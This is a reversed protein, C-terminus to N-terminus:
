RKVEICTLRIVERLHDVDEVSVIELVRNRHVLRMQPDISATVTDYMLEVVTQGEAVQQAQQRERGAGTVFRARRHGLVETTEALDSAVSPLQVLRLISVTERFDGAARRM